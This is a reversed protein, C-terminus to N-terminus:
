RAASRRAAGNQRPAAPKRIPDPRPTRKLIYIVQQNGRFAGGWSHTGHGGFTAAVRYNRGIRDRAGSGIKLGGRLRTLEGLVLYHYRRDYIRRKAQGWRLVETRSELSAVRGPLFALEEAMLLKDKPGVHEALWRIATERSDEIWLQYKIYQHHAPAFLLIPLLVATADLWVPRKARQRLTAYLLAALICALPVLSLLNRFARFKYPAVLLGTAVGFLTWAWVTRSWRPNRWGVLLGAAALVLFVIGTEPHELPLDWEARR